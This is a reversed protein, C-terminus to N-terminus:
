VAHATRHPQLGPSFVSSFAGSQAFHKSCVHSVSSRAKVAMSFSCTTSWMQLGLVPSLASALAESALWAIPLLELILAPGEEFFLSRSCGLTINSTSRQDVCECVHMHLGCVCMVFYLSPLSLQAGSDVEGKREGTSAVHGAAM